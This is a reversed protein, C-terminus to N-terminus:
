KIKHFSYLCGLSCFKRIKESYSYRSIYKLKENEFTKKCNDCIFTEETHEKYIRLSKTSQSRFDNYCKKNCYFKDCGNKLKNTYISKLINNECQCYNCKVTVTEKKNNNFYNAYKQKNQEQTLLQLNNPDDNTFDDDKHDVEFEPPVEYGLKVGMLYRAYTTYKRDKISNYLSIYKRGSPKLRLKGYKYKSKFPEELEIKLGNLNNDQTM